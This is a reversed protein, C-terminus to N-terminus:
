VVPLPREKVLHGIFATAAASLQRDARAIIGIKRVPRPEGLRAHRLDTMRMANLSLLPLVTVGLGAHAMRVATVMNAVEFAPERPAGAVTLGIEALQRVSSKPPLLVLPEAAVDKWAVTRRGAFPHNRRFVVVLEDRFLERFQLDEIPRPLTGIGFDVERNIVREILLENQEEILRVRIGPNRQQFAALARTGIEFAVSPLSAFVIAGRRGQAIDRVSAYADGLEELPGQVRTLLVRGADTLEVRRTTREFLRVGLTAELERIMQSFAPQTMSVQAAARSFSASRAAATFGELQRLKFNM